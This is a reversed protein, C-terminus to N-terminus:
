HDVGNPSVTGEWRYSMQHGDVKFPAYTVTVIEGEPPFGDFRPKQPYIKSRWESRVGRGSSLVLLATGKEFLTKGDTTWEIRYDQVGVVDTPGDYRGSIEIVTEWNSEDIAKVETEFVLESQPFEPYYVKRQVRYNGGTM